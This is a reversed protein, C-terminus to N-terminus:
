AEELEDPYQPWAGSQTCVFASVEVARRHAAALDYGRLLYALFAGSFSDGAGVTDAVDVKPTPLISIEDRGMVISYDGGATLIVVDLDFQEALVRMVNQQSAISEGPADIGFLNAVVPLEEDNIKLITAGEMFRTIVEKNVFGSRINIDFFRVADDRAADIMAYIADRTGWAERAAITGYCIADAHSVLEKVEDTFAIHDWAVGRVVDYSPVGDADLSVSTIGTPYENVQAVVNVGGESLVSVLERGLEDDGVATVATAEVGNHAAHYVFNAPAGGPKKGDPLMDWLLEGITVVTAPSSNTM